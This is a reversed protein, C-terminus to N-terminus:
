RSSGGWYCAELITGDRFRRLESKEGWFTRYEEASTTDDASPGRDLVRSAHMPHLSVGVIIDRGVSSTSSSTSSTTNQRPDFVVRVGTIRNGMGKTVLDSLHQLTNTTNWATSQLTITDQDKGQTTPPSVILYLDYRHWFHINNLFIPDFTDLAGGTDKSLWQSTKMAEQRFAHYANM